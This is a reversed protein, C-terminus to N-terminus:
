KFFIVTDELTLTMSDKDFHERIYNCDNIGGCFELCHPHKIICTIMGLYYEKRKEYEEQKM